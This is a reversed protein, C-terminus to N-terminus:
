WPSTSANHSHLGVYLGSRCRIARRDVPVDAAPTAAIEARQPATALVMRVGDAIGALLEVEGAQVIRWSKNGGCRFLSDRPILGLM